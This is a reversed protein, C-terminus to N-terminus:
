RAKVPLVTCLKASEELMEQKTLNPNFLMLDKTMTTDNAMLDRKTIITRLQKRKRAKDTSRIGACESDIWHNLITDLPAVLGGRHNRLKLLYAVFPRDSPTCAEVRTRKVMAKDSPSRGLPLKSGQKRAQATTMIEGTELDLWEEPKVQTVPRMGKTVRWGAARLTQKPIVHHTGSWPMFREGPVQPVFTGVLQASRVANLEASHIQMSKSLNQLHFLLNGVLLGMSPLARLSKSFTYYSSTQGLSRCSGNPVM